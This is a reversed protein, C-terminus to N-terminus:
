RSLRWIGGTKDDSASAIQKGDSSWALSTVKSQHVRSTRNQARASQFALLVTSTPVVFRFM